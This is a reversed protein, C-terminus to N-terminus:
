ESYQAMAHQATGGPNYASLIIAALAVLFVLSLPL